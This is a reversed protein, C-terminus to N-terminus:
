TRVPIKRFTGNKLTKHKSFQAGEVRIFQFKALSRVADGVGECVEEVARRDHPGPLQFVNLQTAQGRLDTSIRSPRQTIVLLNIGRHRGQLTVRNLAAPLGPKNPYFM